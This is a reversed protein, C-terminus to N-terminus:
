RDHRKDDDKDKKHEERSSQQTPPPPPAARQAPPPPPPAAVPQPVSRPQETTPAYGRQQPAAREEARPTPSPTQAPPLTRASPPSASREVQPQTQNYSRSRSPQEQAQPESARTAGNYTSRTSPESSQRYTSSPPPTTTRSRTDGRTESPNQSQLSQEQVQPQGSRAAGSSTSRTSPEGSQRYTSSPPPTTTRSRTDGRTESPNQSQLSQEQVQPQGSRAAGSSTSRTSPEGSQRYTSSPPATTTRSRMDSERTTESRHDVRNSQTQPVSPEATRANSVGETTNVMPARPNNSRSSTNPQNSPQGRQGNQGFSNREATNANNVSPSVVRVQPAPATRATQTQLQQITTSPLPRGANQQLATQRSAFPVMAPAPASRAVVTRSQIQAPPAARAAGTSVLSARTPTISTFATVDGRAAAARDVRLAAAAVPRASSFVNAPVATLANPASRNAYAVRSVNIDGRSYNNYVNTIYTNNVTTNSINVNHFYNRSVHYGPVYVERPGLPFWGVPAGGAVGIGVGFDRGGVFVVLAPAYVPRVVAPGPVWGWRNQIYAWRGYHFPAFGWPAQDVWTWGWPEIWAWHGDRYPAWDAQVHSPYWVHGYDPADSWSGYEDLDSYGVIEESVYRRSRSHDERDDRAFCFHDFDDARPLDFTEYDRLGADRFQVSEDEEIRFRAGAEGYAEGAGSFVTVTTTDGNPGVDIRYEGGRTATFALTPTDVEYVEGDLLHRIRLNLTGQTLEIQATTDNLNLFDFSSQEDLRIAATGVQLEARAGRDTWLRDGSILPRNVVAEVWDNEGAPVFSVAGRVYSLRAVRSSPDDDAFASGTQALSLLLAWAFSAILTFRPQNTM